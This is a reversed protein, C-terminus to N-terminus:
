RESSASKCLLAFIADAHARRDRNLIQVFIEAHERQDCAVRGCKCSHATFSM